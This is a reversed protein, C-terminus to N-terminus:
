EMKHQGSCVQNKSDKDFSYEKFLYNVNVSVYMICGFSKYYEDM